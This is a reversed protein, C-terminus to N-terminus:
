RDPEIRRAPEDCSVSKFCASLEKGPLVISGRILNQEISLNEIRPRLRQSSSAQFVHWRATGDAGCSTTCNDATRVVFDVRATSGYRIGLTLEDAAEVMDRGLLDIWPAPSQRLGGHKSSIEHPMVLVNWSNVLPHLRGLRGAVHPDPPEHDVYRDLAKKVLWPTGFVVAQGDLIAMWRTDHMQEQERAFPKVLLVELGRYFGTTMGNREAAQFIHQRDHRGAVLLMHENLEGQQSSAAVWITEDIGRHMDVGTLSQCDDFDFTNNATVLLMHGRTDPNHPDEIGAVIQAERPILPLLKSEVPSAIGDISSTAILLGVFLYRNLLKLM